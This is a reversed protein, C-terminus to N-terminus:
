VIRHPFGHKESTENFKARICALLDLDLYAAVFDLYLFVDAIEKAADNRLESICPDSPMQRIMKKLINCLEGTEGALANGWEAANWEDHSFYLVRDRNANRIGNFSREYNNENLTGMKKDKVTHLHNEPLGPLGAIESFM